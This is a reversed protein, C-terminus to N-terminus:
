NEKNLKHPTTRRFAIKVVRIEPDDVDLKDSLTAMVESVYYEERKGPLRAAKLLDGLVVSVEITEDKWGYM